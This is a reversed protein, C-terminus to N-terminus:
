GGFKFTSSVQSYANLHSGGQLDDIEIAVTRSTSQGPALWTLLYMRLSLPKILGHELSAPGLGVMLPQYGWSSSPDPCLANHALNAVIDVVIGNLGGVTVPRPATMKVTPLRAWYAAIQGPATGVGPASVEGSCEQMEAAVGSYVGLYDSTGANVGALSGGPPVLLFNGPTDEYNGWGAPVAYTIQPHFVVTHYTGAQLPGLCSGGDPNPCAPPSTTSSPSSSATSAPTPSTSASISAGATSCGTMTLLALLGFPSRMRRVLHPLRVRPGLSQPCCPAGVPHRHRAPGM